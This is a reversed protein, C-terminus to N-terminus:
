GNKWWLDDEFLGFYAAFENSSIEGHQLGNTNDDLHKKKNQPCNERDALRPERLEAKRKREAERLEAKQKDQEQEESERKNLM